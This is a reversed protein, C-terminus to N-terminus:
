VSFYNFINLVLIYVVWYLVLNTVLVHRRLARLREDINHVVVLVAICSVSCSAAIVSPIYMETQPHAGMVALIVISVYSVCAFVLSISRSTYELFLYMCILWFALVAVMIEIM